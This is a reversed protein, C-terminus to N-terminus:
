YEPLLTQLLFFATIKVLYDDLWPKQTETEFVNETQKTYLNQEWFVNKFKESYYDWM